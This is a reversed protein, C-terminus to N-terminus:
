RGGGSVGHRRVSRHSRTRGSFVAGWGLETLIKDELAHMRAADTESHDDHGCLHLCGHVVYLLLEDRWDTGRARARRRAVSKCLLLQGDVSGAKPRERLDFTLVDTTSDDGLWRAHLRRMETDGVVAIELQGSRFGQSRLTHRAAERLPEEMGDPGDHITIMLRRRHNGSPPKRKPEPQEETETM